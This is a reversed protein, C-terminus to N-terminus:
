GERIDPTGRAAHWFRLIYIANPAHLREYVIRYSGHVIERVAPDGLEPVIRGMAPFDGISLAQSILENGFTRAREPNNRAIFSVIEQLDRQSQETLTVPWGM